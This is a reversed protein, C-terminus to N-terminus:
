GYSPRARCVRAAPCSTSDERRSRMLSPWAVARRVLRRRHGACAANSGGTRPGRRLSDRTREVEFKMLERLGAHFSRSAPRLRFLRIPDSRRAAFLNQRDRPRSGRGALFERAAARHLDRRGFAREGAHIAGAVHLVLHGVPNASRKCYDLLQEFTQYESVTQDQEFASILREFPEIPIGYREVTESLAIM